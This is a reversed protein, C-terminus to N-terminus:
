FDYNFGLGIGLNQITNLNNRNYFNINYTAAVKFEWGSQGLMMLAGLEPATAFSWTEDSFGIYGLYTEHETYIGGVSLAAYPTIDGEDMFRYQVKLFLPLQYFYNYRVGNVAGGDFSYSEREKKQYFGNWGISGGISIKDSIYYDLQVNMGRFSTLNIYDSFDGMPVAINYSMSLQLDSQGQAKGNLNFAGIILAIIIVRKM